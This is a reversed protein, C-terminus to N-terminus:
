SYKSLFYIVLGWLLISFLLGWFCGKAFSGEKDNLLM